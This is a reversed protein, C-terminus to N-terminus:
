VVDQAILLGRDNPYRQRADRGSWGRPAKTRTWSAATLAKGDVLPAPLAQLIRVDVVHEDVSM